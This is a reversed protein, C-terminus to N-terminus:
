ATVSNSSPRRDRRAGGRVLSIPRRAIWGPLDEHEAGVRPPTASIVRRPAPSALRPSSPDRRRRARRGRPRGMSTPMANPRLMRLIPRLRGPFVAAVARSRSREGAVLAGRPVGQESGARCRSAVPRGARRGCRPPPASGRWGRHVPPDAAEGAQARLHVATPAPRPRARHAIASPTSTCLSVCCRRSRWACGSTAVWRRNRLVPCRSPSCLPSSPFSPLTAPYPASLNSSSCDRSFLLLLSVTPPCLLSRPGPRSAGGGPPLWGGPAGVVQELPPAGGRRGWGGGRGVSLAKRVTKSM